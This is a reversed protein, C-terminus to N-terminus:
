SVKQREKKIEELLGKVVALDEPSRGVQKKALRESAATLNDNILINFSPNGIVTQLEEIASDLRHQLKDLDVSGRGQLRERWAAASPPVIFVPRLSPLEAILEVAGQVDVNLAPQEGRMVVQKYAALSTGYYERHVPKVEIFQQQEVMKEIDSQTVFHYDEGDMESVGHNIRLPRTTHSVVQGIGGLQSVEEIIANKGAATIGCVILPPHEALLQKAGLPMQYAVVKQTLQVSDMYNSTNDM